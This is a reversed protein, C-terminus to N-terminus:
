QRTAWGRGEHVRKSPAPVKSKVDVCGDAEVMTARVGNGQSYKDPRRKNASAGAVGGVGGQM